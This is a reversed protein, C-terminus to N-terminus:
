HSTRPQLLFPWMLVQVVSLSMEVQYRKVHEERAPIEVQYKKVYEDRALIELQYRSSTDKAATELQYRKM